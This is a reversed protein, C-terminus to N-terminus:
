MKRGSHLSVPLMQSEPDIDEPRHDRKITAIIGKIEAGMKLIEVGFEAMLNKPNLLVEKSPTISQKYFALLEDLFAKSCPSYEKKALNLVKSMQQAEEAEFVLKQEQAVHEMLAMLRKEISDKSVTVDNVMDMLGFSYTLDKLVTNKMIINLNWMDAHAITQQILALGSLVFVMKHIYAHVREIAEKETSLLMSLEKPMQTERLAVFLPKWLRADVQQQYFSGYVKTHLQIVPRIEQGLQRLEQELGYWKIRSHSGEPLHGKFLYFSLQDGIRKHIIGAIQHRGLSIEEILQNLTQEESSDLRKKQRILIDNLTCALYEGIEKPTNFTSAELARMLTNKQHLLEDFTLRIGHKASVTEIYGMLVITHFIHQYQAHWGIMRAKDLSFTEPIANLISQEPQQLVGLFIAHAIHTGVFQSCLIPIDCRYADPSAVIKNVWHSVIALNYQNGSIREQFKGQEFAVINRAISERAQRIEHNRIELYIQSMKQYIFAVAEKLLIGPDRQERMAMGLQTQFAITEFVHAPSELTKIREIFLGITQYLAEQLGMADMRQKMDERSFTQGVAEQQISPSPRFHAFDHAVEELIDLIPEIDPPEKSLAKLGAEIDKSSEIVCSKPPLEFAPNIAIEHNLIEKPAINWKDAELKEHHDRLNQELTKLGEDGALYKIRKKLTEQQSGFGEYIEIQRPDPNNIIVFRKSELELYYAMCINALKALNNREWTSFIEYFGMQSQHFAEVHAQGETMFREDNKIRIDTSPPLAISIDSKDSYTESMFACLKEFAGLMQEAHALLGADIETPSEFLYESKTAILYASLFTREMGPVNPFRNRSPLVVDKVQELRMLLHRTKTQTDQALVLNELTSFTKTKAQEVSVVQSFYYSSELATQKLHLQKWWRQIAWAAKEREGQSISCADKKDDPAHSSPQSFFSTKRSTNLKM